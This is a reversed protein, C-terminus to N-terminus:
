SIHSFYIGGTNVTSDYGLSCLNQLVSFFETTYIYYMNCNKSGNISQSHQKYHPKFVSVARLDVPPSLMVSNGIIEPLKKIIGSIYKRAKRCIESCSFINIIEGIVTKIRRYNKYRIKQRKDFHGNIDLRYTNDSHFYAYHKEITKHPSLEAIIRRKQQRKGKHACYRKYKVTVPM